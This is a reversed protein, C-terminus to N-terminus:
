WRSGFPNERRMAAERLPNQPELMYAAAYKTRLVKERNDIYPDPQQDITWMTRIVNLLKWPVLQLLAALLSKGIKKARANM